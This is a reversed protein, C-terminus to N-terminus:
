EEFDSMFNMFKKRSLAIFLKVASSKIMPPFFIMSLRSAAVKLFIM